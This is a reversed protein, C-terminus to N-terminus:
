VRGTCADVVACVRARYDLTDTAQTPIESGVLPLSLTLAAALERLVWVADEGSVAMGCWYRIRV